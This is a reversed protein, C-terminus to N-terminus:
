PHSGPLRTLGESIAAVLAVLLFAAGFYSVTLRSQLRKTDSAEIGFIKAIFDSAKSNPRSSFWGRMADWLLLLTVCSLCWWATAVDQNMSKTTYRFVVRFVFLWLALKYEGSTLRFRDKATITARWQAVILIMLLVFSDIEIQPMKLRHAVPATLTRYFHVTTTVFGRLAATKDAISAMSLSTALFHGAILIKTLPSCGEWVKRLSEYDEKV